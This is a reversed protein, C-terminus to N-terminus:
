TVRWEFSAIGSKRRYEHFRGSAYDPSHGTFDISKLLNEPGLPDQAGGKFLFSHLGGPFIGSVGRLKM